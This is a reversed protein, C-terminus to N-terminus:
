GGEGAGAGGPRRRRQGPDQPYRGQHAEGPHGAERRRVGSGVAEGANDLLAQVAQAAGNNGLIKLIDAKTLKEQTGPKEGAFELGSLKEAGTRGEEDEKVLAQVAQAAGDHGLIKLIDAKTLKEQTGPKEGAFELGSLKEANDLLAQVAQAAGNNGLIKLIDAKTLKEKTGPKEGAFELGSLKEANDVLAKLALSGGTRKGIGDCEERSLGFGAAMAKPVLELIREDLKKRSRRKPKSGEAAPPEPQSEEEPIRPQGGLLSQVSARDISISNLDLTEATWGQILGCYYEHVQAARLAGMVQQFLVVADIAPANEVSNRVANLFFNRIGQIDEIEQNQAQGASSSGAQSSQSTRANILRRCGM